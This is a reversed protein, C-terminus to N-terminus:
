EQNNQEMDEVVINPYAMWASIYLNENAEQWDELNEYGINNFAYKLSHGRSKFYEIDDFVKKPVRVVKNPFWEIIYDEKVLGEIELNPTDHWDESAKYLEGDSSIFFDDWNEFRKNEGKTLVRFIETM